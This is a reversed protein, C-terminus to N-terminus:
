EATKDSSRLNEYIKRLDLLKRDWFESKKGPNWNQLPQFYGVVRSYIFTPIKLVKEPKM